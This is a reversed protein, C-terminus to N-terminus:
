ASNPISFTGNTPTDMTRRVTAAADGVPGLTYTMTIGAEGLSAAGEDLRRLVTELDAVLAKAHKLDDGWARMRNATPDTQGIRRIALEEETLVHVHSM